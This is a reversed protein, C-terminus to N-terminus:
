HDQHVEDKHLWNKRGIASPEPATFGELITAPLYRPVLYTVFSRVRQGYTWCTDASQGDNKLRILWRQMAPLTIDSVRNTSCDIIFKNLIYRRTIATGVRRSKKIDTRPM